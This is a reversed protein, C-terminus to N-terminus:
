KSKSGKRFKLKKKPKEEEFSELLEELDKKKVVKKVIERVKKDSSKKLTKIRIGLEDLEFFYRKTSHHIGKMKLVEIKRIRSDIKEDYEYYLNIWGDTFNEIKYDTHPLQNTGKNSNALILTTTGWERINKILKLFGRNRADEGEYKLALPMISDVVVRKAGTARIIEQLASSNDLIQDVETVPYDLIVLKKNKQATNLDWVYGSMNFLFDRKSEEISIYLGPDKSNIIFQLGFTSRGSGTPGGITIISKEPFGGGLIEDLGPIGTKLLKM